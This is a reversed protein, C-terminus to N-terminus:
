KVEWQKSVQEAQIRTKVRSERILASASPTNRISRLILQPNVYMCTARSRLALPSQFVEEFVGGNRSVSSPVREVERRLRTVLAAERRVCVAFPVIDRYATRRQGLDLCPSNSTSNLPGGRAFAILVSFLLEHRSSLCAFGCAPPQRAFVGPLHACPGLAALPFSVRPRPQPNIRREALVM